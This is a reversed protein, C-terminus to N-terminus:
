QVQGPIKFNIVRDGVQSIYFGVKTEFGFFKSIPGTEDKVKIRLSAAGECYLSLGWNEFDLSKLNKEFVVKGLTCLESLNSSDEISLTLSNPKGLIGLRGESMDIIRELKGTERNAFFYAFIKEEKLNGGIIMDDRKFGLIYGAALLAQSKLLISFVSPVSDYLHTDLTIRYFDTNRLFSRPLSNRTPGCGARVHFPLPGDSFM